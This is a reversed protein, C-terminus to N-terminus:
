AADVCQMHAVVFVAHWVSCVSCAVCQLRQMGCVAYIGVALFGM